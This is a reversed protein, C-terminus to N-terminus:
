YACITFDSGVWCASDKISRKATGWRSNNGNVTLGSVYAIGPDTIYVSISTISPIIDENLQRLFFSGNNDSMEFECGGSFVVDDGKEIVCKAPKANVKTTMAFM